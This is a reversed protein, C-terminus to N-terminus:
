KNNRKKLDAIVKDYDYSMGFNEVDGTDELSPEEKDKKKNKNAKSSKPSKTTKGTLKDSFLGVIHNIDETTIDSPAKNILVTYQMDALKAFVIIHGAMVVLSGEPTDGVAYGKSAVEKLVYPQKSMLKVTVDSMAQTQKANGYFFRTYATIFAEPEMLGVYADGEVTTHSVERTDVEHYFYGLVKNVNAYNGNNRLKVYMPLSQKYAKVAKKFNYVTGERDKFNILEHVVVDMAKDFPTNRYMTPLYGTRMVNIVEELPEQTLIFYIEPFYKGRIMFDILKMGAEAPKYVYQGNEERIKFLSKFVDRYRSFEEIVAKKYMDAEEPSKGVVLQSIVDEAYSDGNMMFDVLQGSHEISLYVSVRQKIKYLETEKQANAMYLDSYYKLIDDLSEASEKRMIDLRDKYFDEDNGVVSADDSWLDVPETPDATNHINNLEEETYVDVEREVEGDLSAYGSGIVVEKGTAGYSYIPRITDVEHPTLGDVSNIYRERKGLDIGNANTPHVKSRDVNKPTRGAKSFGGMAEGLSRRVVRMMMNSVKSVLGNILGM